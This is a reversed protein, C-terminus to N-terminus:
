LNLRGENSVRNGEYQYIKWRLQTERDCVKTSNKVIVIQIIWM